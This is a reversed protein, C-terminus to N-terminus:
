ATPGPSAAPTADAGVARPRQLQGADDVFLYPKERSVPTTALTTYPPNPFGRRRARRRRRRLGPEVRRQVLRRDRQQPDAVAAALRQHRDAAQSDAIFGGSAFQPGATCYDMLSLTGGAINLRRMSSRRPSPGSTRRRAAATRGPPTSTRAVPQVAHALLQRPRPLQEHRRRRPLPQLGRDQRQDDRRGAVRRPRRGRHLLGVKM